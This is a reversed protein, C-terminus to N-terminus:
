QENIRANHESSGCKFGSLCWAGILKSTSCIRHDASGMGRKVAQGERNIRNSFGPNRAELQSRPASETSTKSRTRAIAEVAEAAPGKDSFGTVTPVFWRDSGPFWFIAVIVLILINLYCSCPYNALLSEAAWSGRTSLTNRIFIYEWFWATGDHM